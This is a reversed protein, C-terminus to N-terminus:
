TIPRQATLHARLYISNNNNNNNNNNNSSYTRQIIQKETNIKKQISVYTGKTTSGDVLKHLQM